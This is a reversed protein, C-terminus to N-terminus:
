SRRPPVRPPCSLASRVQAIVAGQRQRVDDATYRLITFGADVLRNQRRLDRIFVHQDRHVAGDYEILIHRVRLDPRALFRGDADLIPVNVLPRPLGGDLLLLRLRTEMPSEARGDSTEVARCALRVGRWGPRDAAYAVIEAASVVEEHLLADLCVVAETVAEHRALDFATRVASTVPVGNVVVVDAPDLQARRVKLGSRPRFATDRPLVVETPSDFSRLDVGHLLAASRGAIAAGAPLLVAAARLFLLADLPVEHWVRVGRHVRRWQGDSLRHRPVGYAGFETSRFPRDRPVSDVM